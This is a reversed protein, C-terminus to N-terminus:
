ANYIAKIFHKASQNNTLYKKNKINKKLIKYKKSDFCNDNILKKLTDKNHSDFYLVGAKGITKEITSTKYSIIPLKSLVANALSMGFGEYESTSIYFDCNSYIKELKVQSIKGHLIVKNELNNNIIINKIKNAYKNERSVDGVINLQINDINKIENILYDYKKREIISGCTLLKVKSSPIKKYKKFKEIGPEVISIKSSKIKFTKSLLKKTTHSTVIFYDIKKYIKIARKFFEESKKGNFELYLPHHILAIIKFHDLINISKHLGELVLGDFILINDSKINNTIKHLNEIDQINPNPFNSSLEIFNIPYKNTKSFKLINNEYIYGGTKQNINGPYFFTFKKSNNKLKKKLLHGRLM